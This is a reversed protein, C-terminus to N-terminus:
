IGDRSQAVKGKLGKLGKLGLTTSPSLGVYSKVPIRTGM